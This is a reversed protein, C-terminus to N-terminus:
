EGSVNYRTEVDDVTSDAFCNRIARSMAEIRYPKQLYRINGSSLRGDDVMEASYSSSLIIKLSPKSERLKEALELGTLQGPLVINSLRDM